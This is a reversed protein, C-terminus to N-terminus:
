TIQIMIPLTANQLRVQKRPSNSCKKLAVDIKQAIATPNRIENSDISCQTPRTIKIETNNANDQLRVREIRQKPSQKKESTNVKTAEETFTNYNIDLDTATATESLGQLSCENFFFGIKKIIFNYTSVTPNSLSFYNNM